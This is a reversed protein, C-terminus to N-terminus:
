LIRIVLKVLIPNVYVELIIGLVLMIIVFFTKAQNWQREPYWFWYTFLISYAVGYCIIQPFMGTFCLLIGKIGLQLVAAVMFVGVFFGVMMLCLAVFLKKWKICSFLLIIGLLIIREKAVYLFYKEVIVDTQLYRQLNSITFMETMVVQKGSVINEYIIGILFGVALVIILLQNKNKYRRM